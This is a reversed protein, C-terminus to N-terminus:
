VCHVTAVICPKGLGSHSAGATHDQPFASASVRWFFSPVESSFGSRLLFTRGGHRRVSAPCHSSSRRWEIADARGAGTWVCIGPHISSRMAGSEPRTWRVGSSISPPRTARALCSSDRRRTRIPNCEMGGLFHGAGASRRVASGSDQSRLSLLFCTERGIHHSLDRLIGKGPSPPIFRFTRTDADRGDIVFSSSSPSPVSSPLIGTCTGSLRSFFRIRVEFFGRGSITAAGLWWLTDDQASGTSPDFSLPVSRTM